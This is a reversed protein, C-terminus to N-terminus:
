SENYSNFLYRILGNNEVEQNRSPIKIDRTQFVTGIFYSIRIHPNQGTGVEKISFMFLQQNMRNYLTSIMNEVENIYSEKLSLEAKLPDFIKM